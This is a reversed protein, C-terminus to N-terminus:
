PNVPVGQALQILAQAAELLLWVGGIIVAGFLVDRAKM